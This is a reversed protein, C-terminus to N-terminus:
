NPERAKRTILWEDYPTIVMCYNNYLNKDDVDNKLEPHWIPVCIGFIATLPYVAELHPLGKIVPKFQWAARSRKKYFSEWYLNPINKILVEGYYYMLKDMLDLSDSNYGSDKDHIYDEELYFWLPLKETKYGTVIKEKLIRNRVYAWAPILSKVSFDIDRIEGSKKIENIFESIKEERISLFDKEYERYNKLSLNKYINM